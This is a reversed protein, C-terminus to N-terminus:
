AGDFAAQLESVVIKNMRMMAQMARAAGERNASGLFRPLARPVIQWSVGFRDVLWGCKGERGGRETLKTWLEDTEQQDETVVFISAAPTLRYHPGGNLIMFPAGKLTFEVVMPSTPSDPDVDTELVSDGILSVYFHAAKHGDGEFWLCTRVKSANAM